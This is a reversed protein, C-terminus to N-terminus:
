QKNQIRKFKGCRCQFVGISTKFPMPNQKLIQIGARSNLTRDGAIAFVATATTEIM